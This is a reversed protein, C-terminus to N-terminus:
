NPLYYGRKIYENELRKLSYYYCAERMTQINEEEMLDFIQKVKEKFKDELKQNLLYREYYVNNCNQLWEYYSCLVGGSNTLIDPLIEINRENLIEDGKEDIPGNAAEVILKAQINKAEEECIQLELAAPIVIDCNISFFGLKDITKGIPYHCLDEDNKDIFEQINEIDYGEKHYKYGSANGIGILILGYEKLKKATYYGVNGLGQLIYTKGKLEINKLEAWEKICVAVGTGTAEKRFESGGYNPSKGTFVGYNDTNTIDLYKQTMCDMIEANTGVDPAPIDKEPGIYNVINETLKESIKKLEVNNYQHPDIRLGGKAGGFPIDQLSNKYTMWKSLAEVENVEVNPHYRLGGKYPGMINNHQIRYGTFNQLKRDIEVTFNVTIENQPKSLYTYLNKNLKPFNNYIKLITNDVMRFVNKSM